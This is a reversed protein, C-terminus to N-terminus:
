HPLGVRQMLEAFGPYDRMDLERGFAGVSATPASAVGRELWQMTAQTASRAFVTAVTASTVAPGDTM